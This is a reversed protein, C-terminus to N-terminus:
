LEDVSRVIQYWPEAEAGEARLRLAGALAARQRPTASGVTVSLGVRAAAMLKEATTDGVRRVRALFDLMPLTMLVDPVDEVLDAAMACSERRSLASMRRLLIARGLRIREAKALAQRKQALMEPSLGTTPPMITTGM